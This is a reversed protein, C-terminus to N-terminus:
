QNNGSPPIYHWEVIDGANLIQQDAAVQGSEGNVFYIWSMEATSEHGDISKVFIGFDYQQTELIIDNDNAAKELIDFATLSDSLDFSYTNVNNNGFDIKLKIQASVNDKPQPQEVSSNPPQIINFLSFWGIVFAVFLSGIVILLTKINKM